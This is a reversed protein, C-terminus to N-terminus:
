KNTLYLYPPIHESPRGRVRRCFSCNCDMIEEKYVGDELPDKLKVALTVAGCHCSGHYLKGEEFSAPKPEPGSYVSPVYQPDLKAGDLSGM